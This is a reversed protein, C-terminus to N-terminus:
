HVRRQWSATIEVRFFYGPDRRAYFDGPRLHEFLVYGRLHANLTGDLRAQFLHGRDTGTGFVAPSGGFPHFAGLRVYAGRLGLGRGPTLTAEARLLGLNTWYANGLEPGLVFVLLDSFMPWRGVVPDWGEITTTGPADGSLATYSARVTPAWQAALRRQVGVAGGWARIPTDPVQRGWQVALDGWAGWASRGQRRVHVGVTSLDRDPQFQPNSSPRRDNAERKFFYYADLDVGPTRRDTYYIGFLREDWEVLKRHQDHVVPLYIDYVPDSAAIVELTAKKAVAFTADIANVYDTRSGDGPTGDRWIFGEAKSLDQRGVKISVAHSPSVTVWFAEFITEDMTFPARPEHQGKSENDLMVGFSVRRWLEGTAWARTRFRWLTRADNTAESHDTLNNSDEFRFREEVGTQLSWSSSSHAVPPPPMAPQAGAATVCAVGAGVAFLIARFFPTPAIESNHAITHCIQFRESGSRPRRMGILKSQHHM